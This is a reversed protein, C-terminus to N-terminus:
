NHYYFLKFFEDQTLSYNKDDKLLNWLETIHEADPIDSLVALEAYESRGAYRLRQSQFEPIVYDAKIGHQSLVLGVGYDELLSYWLQEPEQAIFTAAKRSLLYGGQGDYWTLKNDLQVILEGLQRNRCADYHWDGVSGQGRNVSTGLYDYDEFNIRLLQAINLLCDDDIKLMYDADTQEVFYQIAQQVKVGLFEYTDPANVYLIDKDVMAPQHPKGVVFLCEINAKQAIKVWTNRLAEAKAQNKRCTIILILLKPLNPPTHLTHTQYQTLHLDHYTLRKGTDITQQNPLQALSHIHQQAWTQLTQYATEPINVVQELNAKYLYLPELTLGQQTGPLFAVNDRASFALLTLAPTTPLWLAFLDDRLALQHQEIIQALQATTLPCQTNWLLINQFSSKALALHYRDKASFTINNEPLTTHRYDTIAYKLNFFRAQLTRIFIIHDITDVSLLVIIEDFRLYLQHLFDELGQISETADVVCTLGVPRTTKEMLERFGMKLPNKSLDILRALRLLGQESADYGPLKLTEHTYNLHRILHIDPISIELKLNNINNKLQLHISSEQFYFRLTHEVHQEYQFPHNTEQEWQFHNRRNTVVINKTFRLDVHLFISKRQTDLFEINLIAYSAPVTFCIELASGDVPAYRVITKEM